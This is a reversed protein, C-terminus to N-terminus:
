FDVGEDGLDAFSDFLQFLVACREDRGGHGAFDVHPLSHRELNFLVARESALTNHLREPQADQTIHAKGFGAIAM